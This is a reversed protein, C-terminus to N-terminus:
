VVWAVFGVGWATSGMGEGVWTTAGVREGVEFGGGASGIELWAGAKAVGDDVEVSGM